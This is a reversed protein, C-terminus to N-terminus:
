SYESTWMLVPLKKRMRDIRRLEIQTQSVIYEYIYINQEYENQIRIENTWKLFVRETNRAIKIM